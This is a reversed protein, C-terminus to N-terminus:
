DAGEEIEKLAEKVEKSAVIKGFVKCAKIAQKVEEATVSDSISLLGIMRIRIKKGIAIADTIERKSIRNIGIVYIDHTQTEPLATSEIFKQVMTGELELAKRVATRIFDSRGDYLGQEVLYDIKGLEVPSLNVSVKETKM